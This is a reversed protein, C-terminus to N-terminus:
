LDLVMLYISVPMQFPPFFSVVPMNMSTLSTTLPKFVAERLEEVNKM